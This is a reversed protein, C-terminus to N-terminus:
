EVKIDTPPLPPHLAKLFIERSENFIREAEENIRIMEMEGQEVMENFKQRAARVEDDYRQTASLLAKDMEKTLQEFNM